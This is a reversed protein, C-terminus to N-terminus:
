QIEIADTYIVKYNGATGYILYGRAYAEDGYPTASFQGHARNWQSSAKSNCSDVTMKESSGFLIGVEAITQNGRDYEIMAAGDITRNEILILPKKEIPAYSSYIQTGDWVFYSYKADYSAVRGDRLWHTVAGKTDTCVVETNFVASNDAGNVNVKDAKASATNVKENTSINENEKAAETTTFRGEFMAIAITEKETLEDGAKLEEGDATFWGKFIFGPLTPETEPLVARGDDAAVTAFYEGNEKYFSIVKGEATGAPAYVAKLYTNTMVKYTDTAKSSVFVGNKTWCKFINGDSDTEPAYIEVESGFPLSQIKSDLSTAFSVNGTIDAAEKEEFSGDSETFTLSKLKFLQQTKASTEPNDSALHMILYHIGKSLTVTGVYQEAENASLNVGDIHGIRDLTKIFSAGIKGNFLLNEKETFEEQSIIYLDAETGNTVGTLMDAIVDYIGNHKIDVQLVFRTDVEPTTGTTGNGCYGYRSKGVYWEMHDPYLYFVRGGGYPSIAWDSTGKSEDIEDLSDVYQELNNVNVKLLEGTSIGAAEMAADSMMNTGIIFKHTKDIPNVKITVSDSYEVGGITAKATITANGVKLGTVNGEADISVVDAPSISYSIEANAATADANEAIATLKTSSGAEIESSEVSLSVWPQRTLSLSQVLAFTRNSKYNSAAQGRGITLIMWYKGKKLKVEDAAENVPDTSNSNTDRSIIHKVTADADYSANEIATYVPSVANKDMTEVEFDDQHVLYIDVLGTTTTSVTAVEPIYMGEKDVELGFVIFNAGVTEMGSASLTMRTTDLATGSYFSGEMLGSYWWKGSSVTKDFEATESVDTPKAATGVVAGKVFVFEPNLEVAEGEAAFTAPIMAIVLALALIISLFRKM